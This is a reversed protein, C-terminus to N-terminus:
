KKLAALKAELDAIQAKLAAQAAKFAQTAKYNRFESFGVMGAIALLFLGVVVNAETM